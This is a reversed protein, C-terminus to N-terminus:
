VAAAVDPWLQRCAVEHLEARALLQRAWASHCARELMGGNLGFVAPADPYLLQRAEEVEVSSPQYLPWIQRVQGPHVATKAFLGRHMDEEVERALTALDEVRDFVPGCLKVDLVSFAELLSDIVKGVPTEYVTRGAPRRLGGLLAFLDNAGIRACPILPRHAACAQALERRGGPDLAERSELIPLLTHLGASREVWLHIKSVTAKPLIFGRVREIPANELLWELAEVDSPRIFVPRPCGELAQLEQCLLEAAHRRDEVRVADELCVALSCVGLDRGGSLIEGLGPRNAPVYLLPALLPLEAPPWIM